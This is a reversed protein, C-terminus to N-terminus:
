RKAKFLAMVELALAEVAIALVLAKWPESFLALEPTLSSRALLYPAAFALVTFSKAYFSLQRSERLYFGLLVAFLLGLLVCLFSLSVLWVLPNVALSGLSELTYFVAALAILVILLAFPRNVTQAMVNNFDGGSPGATPSIIILLYLLALSIPNTLDALAGAIALLNSANALAIDEFSVFNFVLKEPFAYNFAALFILPPLFTPALSSLVLSLWGMLSVETMSKVYGSTGTVEIKEVKSGTVAAVLLHGLEHVAVSAWGVLYYVGRDRRIEPYIIKRYAWSALSAQIAWATAAVALFALFPLFFGTGPLLPIEGPIPLAM